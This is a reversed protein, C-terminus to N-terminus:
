INQTTLEVTTNAGLVNLVTKSAQEIARSIKEEASVKAMEAERRLNQEAEIITELVQLRKLTEQLREETEKKEILLRQHLQQQQQQTQQQEQQQRLLISINEEASQRAQAEQQRLKELAYVKDVFEKVQTELSNKLAKENEFMIKLEKVNELTVFFNTEIRSKQSEVNRIQNTLNSIEEQATKRTRMESDLAGNLKNVNELAGLLKAETTAKQTEANEIKKSLETAKDESIRRAEKLKDELTKRLHKETGILAEVKNLHEITKVLKEEVQVKNNIINTKQEETERIKLAMEEIKAELVLRNDAEQKTLIELKEELEKKALEAKNKGEIARQMGTQAVLRSKENLRVQEQARQIKKDTQMQFHSIKESAEHIKKDSIQEAKAIKEAALTEAVKIKENAEKTATLAAVDAYELAYKAKEEAIKITQDKALIVSEKKALEMFFQTEKQEIVRATEHIKEELLKKANEEELKALKRAREEELKSQNALNLQQEAKYVKEAALKAQQIAFLAKEESAKRAEEEKKIAIELTEIQELAKSFKLEQSLNLIEQEKTKLESMLLNTKQNQEAENFFFINRPYLFGGILIRNEEKNWIQENLQAHENTKAELVQELEQRTLDLTNNEISPDVELPHFASAVEEMLPDEAMHELLAPKWPRHTRKKFFIKKSDWSDTSKM